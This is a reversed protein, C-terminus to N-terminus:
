PNAAILSRLHAFFQQATAITEPVVQNSLHRDYFADRGRTESRNPPPLQPRARWVLVGFMSTYFDSYLDGIDATRALEHQAFTRAWVLGGVLQGDTRSDRETYYTGLHNRYWEELGYIWCLIETLACLAVDESPAGLMRLRAAELGREGLELARLAPQM